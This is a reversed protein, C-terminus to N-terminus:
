ERLLKGVISDIPIPGFRRSDLSSDWNDGMIFVTGM